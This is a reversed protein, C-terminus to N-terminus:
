PKRVIVSLGRGYATEGRLCARRYSFFLEDEAVTDRSTRQVIEIGARGLRHEVYGPLDFMFHGARSALAFYCASTPDEALFKERFEPGVEYSSQTICPGIGTRIRRREAGLAEMRDVTAEVIGSLAGRWGGHAAGIVSAVSDQLLIPVCDAALVGLAIDPARTVMGDARPAAERSWPQEVTVVTASHIQYCTVLRDASLDLRGMAIGRNRKVNTEADGSGYGCNLSHFLGGSVGGQRSFFAHRIGADDELAEVTIMGKACRTSKFLDAAGAVARFLVEATFNGMERPEPL